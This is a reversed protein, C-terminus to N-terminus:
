QVRVDGGDGVTKKKKRVLSSGLVNVKTAVSPEAASGDGVKPASNPQRSTDADSSQSANKRRILGTM